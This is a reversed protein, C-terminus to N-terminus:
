NDIVKVNMRCGLTRQKLELPDVAHDKDGVGHAEGAHAVANGTKGTLADRDVFLARM